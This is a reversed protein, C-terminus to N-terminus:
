GSRPPIDNPGETNKGVDGSDPSPAASRAVPRQTRPTSRDVLPPAAQDSAPKAMGPAFLKVIAEGENGLAIEIRDPMIRKITGSAISDGETVRVTKSGGNRILAYRGEPLIVIGALVIPTGLAVVSVPTKHPRRDPAFLPRENVEAFTALPAINFTAAGPSGAIAPGEVDKPHARVVTSRSPPQDPSVGGFATALWASAFTGCTLAYLTASQKKM